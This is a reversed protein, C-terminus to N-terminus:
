HDLASPAQMHEHHLYCVRPPTTMICLVEQQTADFKIEYGVPNDTKQVVTAPLWKGRVSYVEVSENPLLTCRRLASASLIGERTGDWEVQVICPDHSPDSEHKLWPVSLAPSPLSSGHEQLLALYM